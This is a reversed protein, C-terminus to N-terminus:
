NKQAYYPRQYKTTSIDAKTPTKQLNSNRNAATKDKM